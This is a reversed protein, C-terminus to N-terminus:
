FPIVEALDNLFFPKPLIKMVGLRRLDSQISMTLFGSMVVVPIKYGRGRIKELLDRGTPPGMKLDLVILDPNELHILREVQSPDMVTVCEIDRSGLFKKLMKLISPDDDAVLIKKM